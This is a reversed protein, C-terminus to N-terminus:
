STVFEVVAGINIQEVQIAVALLCGGRRNRIAFIKDSQRLLDGFDERPRGSFACHEANIEAQPRLAVFALERDTDGIRQSIVGLSGVVPFALGQNLDPM